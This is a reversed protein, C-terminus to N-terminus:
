VISVVITSGKPARTGAKPDTAVVYQVGIYLSAESVEVEFGAAELRSRAAALGMRVVQPVEVLVPGDEALVM